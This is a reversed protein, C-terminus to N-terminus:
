FVYDEDEKCHPLGHLFNLGVPFHAYTTCSVVEDPAELYCKISMQRTPAHAHFSDAKIM